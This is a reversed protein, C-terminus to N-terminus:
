HQKNASKCKLNLYAADLTNSKQDLTVDSSKMRGVYGKAQEKYVEDAQLNVSMKQLFADLKENAKLHSYYEDSLLRWVSRLDYKATGSCYGSVSEGDFYIYTEKPCRGILGKEKDQKSLAEGIWGKNINTKKISLSSSLYNEREAVTLTGLGEKIELTSFYLDAKKIETLRDPAVAKLIDEFFATDGCEYQSKVWLPFLTEFSHKRGREHNNFAFVSGAVVGIGSLFFLFVLITKKM